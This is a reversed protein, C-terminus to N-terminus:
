KTKKVKQIPIEIKTYEENLQRTCENYAPVEEGSLNARKMFALIHLITEKTM